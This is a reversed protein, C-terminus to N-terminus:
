GGIYKKQKKRKEYIINCCGFDQKDLKKMDINYINSYEITLYKMCDVGWVM